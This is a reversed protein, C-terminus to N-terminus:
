PDRKGVTSFRFAWRSRSRARGSRRARPGAVGSCLLAEPSRISRGDRLLRACARRPMPRHSGRDGDSHPDVRPDGLQFGRLNIEKAVSKATFLFDGEGNLRDQRAGAPMFPLLLAPVAHGREILADVFFLGAMLDLMSKPQLFIRDVPDRFSSYTVLPEGSEYQRIPLAGSTDGSYWRIYNVQRGQSRSHGERM